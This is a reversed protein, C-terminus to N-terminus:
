KNRTQSYIVLEKLLYRYKDNIALMDIYRLAESSLKIVYKDTKDRIKYKDILYRVRDLQKLTPNKRFYSLFEKADRKSSKTLFKSRFITKKNEKVDSGQTKGTKEENGFIGLEDDKIQYIIGLKKGFSSLM